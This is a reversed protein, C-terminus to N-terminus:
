EDNLKGLKEELLGRVVKPDAAGEFRRMTQGIFFGILGQKGELYTEVQQPNEALIADIIPELASTDTVQFLGEETAIEEPTAPDDLMADFIETSTSSSIKEDLRLAILGALRAPEIPFADAGIRRDNIVRRVDGMVYNSVAKAQDPTPESSNSLMALTAEFYDATARDETLVGADYAPLELDVILRERRSEPLEPMDARVSDLLEETVEVHPLDPDPFYRYDHSFEKTRMPRTVLAGADWLRTEQGITGGSELVDIQREVEHAAAREVNRISNLNKVEVKTGLEEVGKKRVSVNIDCRLSGEEMNGDCIRLYRVIQRIKTLYRYAEGPSCLDPESVIEILPVGCRNYDVLTAYPDQDHISKGADEEMHIRTIGIHRREDDEGEIEIWGDHCIPTEFQSIQYGKPLDPYFYHKRAFVSREAVKCNTALGMALTYRVVNENLVPLVGPHGLTIPDVHTNPEAGFETSDPSFAKAETLLQAHVELGIVCEYQFSSKEPMGSM